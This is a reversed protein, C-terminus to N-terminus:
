GWGHLTRDFHDRREAFQASRGRDMRDCGRPAAIMMIAGRAMSAPVHSATTHRSRITGREDGRTESSAASTVIAAQAAGGGTAGVEGASTVVGTAKGAGLAAGSGGRGERSSATARAMESTS